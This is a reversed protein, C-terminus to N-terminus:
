SKKKRRKNKRRKGESQGSARKANLRQISTKLADGIAVAIAEKEAIHRDRERVRRGVDIKLAAAGEGTFAISPKPMTEGYTRLAIRIGLRKGSGSPAEEIERHYETVAVYVRYPTLGRKELYRVFAAPKTSPDPADKPLGASSLTLVHPHTSVARELEKKVIPAIESPVGPDLDVHSILFVYAATPPDAAHAPSAACIILAAVAGALM